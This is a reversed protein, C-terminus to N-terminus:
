QGLQYAFLILKLSPKKGQGFRPWLPGVALTSSQVPETVTEPLTTIILVDDLKGRGLGAM